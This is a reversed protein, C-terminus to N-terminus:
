NFSQHAREGLLEIFRDFGLGYWLPPDGRLTDERPPLPYINMHEPLTATSEEAILTKVWRNIRDTSSLSWDTIIEHDTGAIIWM